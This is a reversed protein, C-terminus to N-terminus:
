QVSTVLFTLVDEGLYYPSTAQIFLIKLEGGQLM